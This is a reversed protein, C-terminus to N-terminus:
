RKKFWFCGCAYKEGILDEKKANLIIGGEREPILSFEVLELDRFYEMIYEYTYIRHANYEIIAHEGMPTVFLISGGPKTVRILEKIAKSDGDADIPDGYRGLGIHEITHMCSISDISNSEFPLNMLDGPKSELNSLHLQAPRYDYFHVPVFASVIGSFYLSSSIDVHFTPNIEKVKRAAWSTHYVYHRDFGTTVTKDKICPYADSLKLSFRKTHVSAKKFLFYDKLIFPITALRIAQKIYTKIKQM